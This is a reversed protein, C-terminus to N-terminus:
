GKVRQEMVSLRGHFEKSEAQTSERWGRVENQFARLDARIEAQGGHIDSRLWTFLAIVVTLMSLLLGIDVGRLSITQPKKDEETM